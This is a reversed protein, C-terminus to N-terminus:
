VGFAATRRPMGHMSSDGGCKPSRAFNDVTYHGNRVLWQMIGDTKYYAKRQYDGLVRNKGIGNSDEREFLKEWTVPELKDFTEIIAKRSLTEPLRM